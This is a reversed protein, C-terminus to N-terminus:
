ERDRRMNDMERKKEAFEEIKRTEEDEKSADAQQGLVMQRNAEILDAKMEAM